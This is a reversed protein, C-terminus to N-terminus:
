SVADPPETDTYVVVAATAKVLLASEKTVEQLATLQDQLEKIKDAQSALLQAIEAQQVQVEKLPGALVLVAPAASVGDPIESLWRGWTELVEQVEPVNPYMAVLAHIAAALEWKTKTTESPTPETM